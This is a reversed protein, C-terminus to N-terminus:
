PCDKGFLDAFGQQDYGFDLSYGSHQQPEFTGNNYTYTYRDVKRYNNESFAKLLSGNIYYKGKLLNPSSDYNSFVYEEKGSIGDIGYLLRETKVLNGNEITFVRYVNGDRKETIQNGNYEYTFHYTFAPYNHVNTTTRNLLQGNEITFVKDYPRTTYNASHKVTVTNGSYTIFDQIGERLFWGDFDGGPPLRFLGSKVKYIRNYPDYEFAIVGNYSLDAKGHFVLDDYFLTSYHVSTVKCNQM